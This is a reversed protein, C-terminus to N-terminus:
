GYKSPMAMSVKPQPQPQNATYCYNVYPAIRPSLCAVSQNTLFEKFEKDNVSFEDVFVDDDVIFAQYKLNNLFISDLTNQRFNTERIWNFEPHYKKCREYGAEYYSDTFTYIINVRCLEWEKFYKKFSSLTLDLQCARNKSWVTVNIM